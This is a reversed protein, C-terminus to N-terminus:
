SIYFDFSHVRTRNALVGPQKYFTNMKVLSLDIFEDAGIGL